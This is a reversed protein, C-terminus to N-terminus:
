QGPARPGPPPPVPEPHPVAGPEPERPDIPGAIQPGPEAASGEVSRRRRLRGAGILAFRPPLGLGDVLTAIAWQRVIEESAVEYYFPGGVHIYHRDNPVNQFADTEGSAAPESAAQQRVLSDDRLADTGGTPGRGISREDEAM